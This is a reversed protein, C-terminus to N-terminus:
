DDGLLFSLLTELRICEPMLYGTYKGQDQLFKLLKKAEVADRKDVAHGLDKIEPSFLAEVVQQKLGWWLQERTPQHLVAYLLRELFCKKLM